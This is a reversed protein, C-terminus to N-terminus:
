AVNRRMKRKKGRQKRPEIHLKDKLAKVEADDGGCENVWTYVSPRPIGLLEGVEPVTNRQKGAELLLFRRVMKELDKHWWGDHDLDITLKRGRFIKGEAEQALENLRANEVVPRVELWAKFYVRADQLQNVAAYSAALRLCCEGHIRPNRFIRGRDKRLNLNKADELDKIASHVNASGHTLARVMLANIRDPDSKANEALALAKEAEERSDVVLRKAKEEEGRAAAEISMQRLAYSRVLLAGFKWRFSDKVELQDAADCWELAKEYQRRGLKIFGLELYAGALYLWHHYHDFTAAADHVMRELREFDTRERGELARRAMAHIVDAYKRNIIDGTEELLLRAPAL